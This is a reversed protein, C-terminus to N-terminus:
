KLLTFVLISAVLVLGVSLGLVVLRSLSKKNNETEYEKSALIKSM